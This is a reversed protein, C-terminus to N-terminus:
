IRHHRVQSKLHRGRPKLHRNFIDINLYRHSFLGRPKLHINFRRKFSDVSPNAQIAEGPLDNWISTCRRIFNKRLYETRPTDKKLYNSRATHRQTQRKPQIFPPVFRSLENSPPSNMYKYFVPMSVVDLREKLPKLSDHASACSARNARDQIKQLPALV